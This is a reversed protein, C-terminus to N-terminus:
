WWVFSPPVAAAIETQGSCEDAGHGFAVLGDQAHGGLFDEIRM